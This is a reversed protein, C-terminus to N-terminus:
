RPPAKQDKGPETSQPDAPANKRYDALVKQVEDFLEAPAELGRLKPYIPEVFARWEAEIAPTVARVVCLVRHGRVLLEHLIASGLLGTAGTLLVWPKSDHNTSQWPLSM